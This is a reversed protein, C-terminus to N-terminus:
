ESSYAEFKDFQSLLYLIFYFLIFCIFFYVFLIKICSGFETKQFETEIEFAFNLSIDRSVVEQGNMKVKKSNEYKKANQIENKNALVDLRVYTYISSRARM